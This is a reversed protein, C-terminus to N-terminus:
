DRWAPPAPWLRTPSCNCTECRVSLLLCVVCLGDVFITSLLAYINRGKSASPDITVFIHSVTKQLTYTRSVMADVWDREFASTVSPTSGMNQLERNYADMDISMLEKVRDQAQWSSFHEPPKAVHTCRDAIGKRQCEICCQVWCLPEVVPDGNPYKTQMMRVIPSDGDVSVSSTFVCVPGTALTPLIALLATPNFFYIEDFFIAM